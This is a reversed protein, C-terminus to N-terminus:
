KGFKWGQSEMRKKRITLAIIMMVCPVSFVLAIVFMFNFFQEMMGSTFYQALESLVLTVFSIISIPIVARLLRDLKTTESEKDTYIPSTRPAAKFLHTGHSSCVHEWGAARFMEFYEEQEMETVPNVDISFIVDEAPGEELEYGMGKYRKVIWGKAAHERLRRLDNKETFAIGESALRKKRVM